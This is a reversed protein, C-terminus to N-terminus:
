TGVERGASCSRVEKRIEKLVTERRCQEYHEYTGCVHHCDAFGGALLRWMWFVVKEM